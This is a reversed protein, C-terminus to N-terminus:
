GVCVLMVHRGPETNTLEAVLQVARTISLDVLGVVGVPVTVNVVFLVPLKVGDALQVRAAPLPGPMAVQVTDYVGVTAPLWRIVPV